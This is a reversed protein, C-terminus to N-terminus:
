STLHGKVKSPMLSTSSSRQAELLGKWAGQQVQLVTSLEQIMIWGSSRGQRLPVRVNALIELPSQLCKWIMVTDNSIKTKFMM